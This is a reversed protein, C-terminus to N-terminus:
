EAAAEDAAPAAPAEDAAPKASAAAADAALSAAAATEREAAQAATIILLDIHEITRKVPDRQVDRPATLFSTGDLSISFVVGRKRLALELEHAPLAVHQLTAGDGYIVAPINGERRTRRAAGKGFDTRAVATLSVESV